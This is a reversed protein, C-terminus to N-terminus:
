FIFTYIFWTMMIQVIHITQDQILNISYFNAKANDTMAHIIWNIFFLIAFIILNIQISKVYVYVIIPIHIMVTWSFAHEMLAMIYDHKYYKDYLQSPCNKKWWSQQKMSALMGQLYYDDIIHFFLMFILLLIYDM